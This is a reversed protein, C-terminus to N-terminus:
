MIGGKVVFQRVEKQIMTATLAKENGLDGDKDSESKLPSEGSRL